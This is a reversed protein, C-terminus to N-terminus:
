YIEIGIRKNRMYWPGLRIKNGVDSYITFHMAGYVSCLLKNYKM